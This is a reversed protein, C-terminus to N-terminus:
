SLICYKGSSCIAPLGPSQAPIHCLCVAVPVRFLCWAISLLDCQFRELVAFRELASRLTVIRATQGIHARGLQKDLIGEEDEARQALEGHLGQAGLALAIELRVGHTGLQEGEVENEGDNLTVHGDERVWGDDDM